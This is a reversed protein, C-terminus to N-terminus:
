IQMKSAFANQEFKETLEFHFTNVEKQDQIM